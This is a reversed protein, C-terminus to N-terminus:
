LDKPALPRGGLSARSFGPRVAHGLTELPVAQRDFQVAHDPSYNVCFGVVRGYCVVGEPMAAVAQQVITEASDPDPYWFLRSRANVVGAITIPSPISLTTEWVVHPQFAQRYGRDDRAWQVYRSDEIADFVVGEDVELAAALKCALGRSEKLDGALMAEIHRIGKAVTSVYGMRRALQANTLGLARMRAEMLDAMPLDGDINLRYM